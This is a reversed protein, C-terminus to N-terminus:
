LMYKYFMKFLTLQRLINLLEGKEYKKVAHVSLDFLGAPVLLVNDERDGISAMKM